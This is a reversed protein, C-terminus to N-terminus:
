IKKANRKRGLYWYKLPNSKKWKSEKSKKISKIYFDKGSYSQISSIITAIIEYEEVALFEEDEEHLYDGKSEVPIKKKKKDNSFVKGMFIFLFYLIVLILFVISIGLITIQINISM